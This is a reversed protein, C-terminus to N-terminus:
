ATKRAPRAASTASGRTSAATRTSRTSKATSAPKSKSGAKPSSARPKVPANSKARRTARNAAALAEGEARRVVLQAAGSSVGYATMVLQSLMEIHTPSVGDAVMQPYAPGLLKQEIDMPEGNPGVILALLERVYEPSAAPDSPRGDKGPPTQEQLKVLRRLRLEDEASPPPVVYTKGEPHKESAVGHFKCADGALYSTVDFEPM